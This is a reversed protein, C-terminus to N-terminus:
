VAARNESTRSTLFDHTSDRAIPATARRASDIVIKEAREAPVRYIKDVIGLTELLREDAATFM